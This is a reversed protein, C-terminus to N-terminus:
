LSGCFYKFCKFFIHVKSIFFHKNFETEVKMKKQKHFFIYKNVKKLCFAHETLYFSEYLLTTNKFSLKMNSNYCLLEFILDNM